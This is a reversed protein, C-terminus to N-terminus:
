FATVVSAFRVLWGLAGPQDDLVKCYVDSGTARIGAPLILKLDCRAHLMEATLLFGFRSSMIALQADFGEGFHMKTENLRHVKVPVTKQPRDALMEVEPLDLHDQGRLGTVSHLKVPNSVGKTRITFARAAKLKAGLADATSESILIEGGVTVAQIRAALNVQAGVVGYKARKDSGINGVVVEGTNIGIGMELSGIGLRSLRRNVREMTSQMALACAV